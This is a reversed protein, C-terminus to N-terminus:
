YPTGCYIANWEWGGNLNIDYPYDVKVFSFYLTRVMPIDWNETKLFLNNESSFDEFQDSFKINSNWIKYIALQNFTWLDASTKQFVKIEFRRKSVLSDLMKRDKKSIATKIKNILDFINSHIWYKKEYFLNIERRIDAIDIDSESLNFGPALKLLKEFTEISSKLDFNEKYLQALEFLTTPVDIYDAFDSLLLNYMNVKLPYNSNHNITNIAILYGIPSNKYMINYHDKNIKSIYFISIDKNVDWYIESLIFYYFSRLKNNKSKVAMEGLYAFVDQYKNETKFINIIGDIHSKIKNYDTENNIDEILQNVTFSNHISLNYIKDTKNSCDQLLFLFLFLLIRKM